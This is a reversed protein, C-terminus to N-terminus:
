GGRYPVAAVKPKNGSALTASEGEAVAAKLQGESASCISLIRCPDASAALYAHAMGSDFYMSDGAELRVPAYLETHFEITGELVYVFEEGAHRIMEGFEEISTARLEGYIPVFRKHLLETALYVNLYNRTEISNGEGARNICRRGTIGKQKGRPQGASFLEGLEVNMGTSIKVLKDYTLSMKDNELKSLTPISLGTRSSVEALTWGRQVRFARLASGPKTVMDETDTM